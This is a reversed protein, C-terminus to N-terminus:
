SASDAEDKERWNVIIYSGTYLKELKRNDCLESLVAYAADESVDFDTALSAADGQWIGEGNAHLRATKRGDVIGPLDASSSYYVNLYSFVDHCCFCRGRKKVFVVRRCGQVGFPTTL